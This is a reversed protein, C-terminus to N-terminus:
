EEVRDLILWGSLATIYDAENAINSLIDDMYKKWTWQKGKYIRMGEWDSAISNKFGEPPTNYMLLYLKMARMFGGPKPNGQEGRLINTWAAQKHKQKQLEFKNSGVGTVMESEAATLAEMISTPAGASGSLRALLATQDALVKERAGLEATKGAKRASFFHGVPDQVSSYGSRAAEGIESALTMKEQKLAALAKALDNGTGAGAGGGLVEIALDKRGDPAVQRWLRADVPQKGEFYSDLATQLTANDMGAIVTEDFIDIGGPQFGPVSALAELESMFDPTILEEEPSYETVGYKRKLEDLQNSYVVNMQGLYEELDGSGGESVYSRIDDKFARKLVQLEIEYGGPEEEISIEEVTETIPGQDMTVAEEIETPGVDLSPSVAQAM